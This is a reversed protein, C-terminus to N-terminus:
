GNKPTFIWSNPGLNYMMRHTFFYAHDKSFKIFIPHFIIDCIMKLLSIKYSLKFFNSTFVSFGLDDTSSRPLSLTLLEVGRVIEVKTAKLNALFLFMEAIDSYVNARRRLNAELADLMPIFSNIKFRKKSSLESLADPANRQRRTVARTLIRCPQKQKSILSTLSM